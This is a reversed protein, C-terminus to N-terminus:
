ACIINVISTANYSESITPQVRSHLMLSVSGYELSYSVSIIEGPLKGKKRIPVFKIGMKQAMLPGFIFGRADLGVIVEAAPRLRKTHEVLLDICDAFVDAERM